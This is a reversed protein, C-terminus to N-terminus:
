RHRELFRDLRRREAPELQSEAVFYIGGPEPMPVRAVSFLSDLGKCSIGLLALTSRCVEIVQLSTPNDAVFALNGAVAVDVASDLTDYSGALVPSSPDSIDIVQLGSLGDAVFALNGAM